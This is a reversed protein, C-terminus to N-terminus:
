PCLWTNSTMDYVVGGTSSVGERTNEKKYFVILYDFLNQRKFYIAHRRM